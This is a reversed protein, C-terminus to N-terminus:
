LHIGKLACIAYRLYQPAHEKISNLADQGWDKIAEAMSDAADSIIEVMDDMNNYLKRNIYM